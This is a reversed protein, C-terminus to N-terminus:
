PPAPTSAPALPTPAPRAPGGEAVWQDYNAEIADALLNGVIEQGTSSLHLLDTWALPPKLLSWRVISGPGGMSAQADWFACGAQSAAARQAAVLPALRPKSRASGGSRTGQDLPTVILCGAHPAGARLRGVVDLFYPIYASGDGDLLDSGLENGGLMVVVLDPNRAAIQAQLHKRGQQRFSHTGVGTVGLADWVVGPGATEMVVGYFTAPGDASAGIAARTYGQERDVRYFRDVTSAASASGAGAGAGDLSSWWGGRAPGAQYYVEFHHLRLRTGDAQRPSSFSVWAEPAATSVIGGFGYRGNGGGNLLTATTWEGTRRHSVDARMMWQPDMGASLYGPGGNGFRAQLRSRITSTIGDAAITSDGWHSARALGQGQAVRHLARFFPDMGRHDPDVLATPVGPPREPLRLGPPPPPPLATASEVEPALEVLEGSESEVVRPADSPLLRDIVPIPDGPVWARLHALPPAAYPVTALLGATGFALLLAWLGDRSSTM